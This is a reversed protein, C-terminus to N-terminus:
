AHQLGSIHENEHINKQIFREIERKSNLGWLLDWPNNKWAFSFVLDHKNYFHILASKLHSENNRGAYYEAENKKFTTDKFDYHDHIVISLPSNLLRFGANTIRLSMENDEFSGRMLPDVSYKEYIDRRWATAGGPIWGCISFRNTKEDDFDLGEDVLSFLAYGDDIALAGGNFQIKGNPFVVKCCAGAISEDKNITALLNEAYYPFVLIDNDLFLLYQYQAYRAAKARGGACGLNSTELIVRLNHYKRSIKKLEERVPSSSNNDLIILEFPVSTYKYINKIAKRTDEIRNYSLMIISIRDDKSSRKVCLPDDLVVKKIKSKLDLKKESDRFFSYGLFRDKLIGLLKRDEYTSKYWKLNKQLNKIEDRLRDIQFQHDAM